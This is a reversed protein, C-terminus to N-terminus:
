WFPHFFGIIGDWDKQSQCDKNGPELNIEGGVAKCGDNPSTTSSTHTKSYQTDEEDMIAILQARRGETKKRLIFGLLRGFRSIVISALLPLLLPISAVLLVMISLTRSELGFFSFPEGGAPPTTSTEAM